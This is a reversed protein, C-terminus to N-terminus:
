AAHIYNSRYQGCQLLDLEYTVRSIGAPLESLIIRPFGETLPYYRISQVTFHLQEYEPRDIYGLEALRIDFETLAVPTILLEQRLQKVLEAPSTGQSIDIVVVALQLPTSGNELQDASSISVSHAGPLVTKVEILGDGLQFDQPTGLPGNWGHIATLHDFHEMAVTKLFWLEGFLGRLQRDTLGQNPGPELLKRWRSLRLLLRATGNQKDSTRSTEALDQCLRGFLEHFEPRALRFLLNFQGDNRQNLALEIVGPSPMEEPAQDVVLMLVRRGEPDIGVFLDLPHSADYLRFAGAPTDEDAIKSWVEEISNMM